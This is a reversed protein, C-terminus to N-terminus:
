NGLGIGLLVFQIYIRSVVALHALAAPDLARIDDSVRIVFASGQLAVPTAHVFTHLTM